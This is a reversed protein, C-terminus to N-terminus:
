SYIAPVIAVALRKSIRLAAGAAFETSTRQAELQKKSATTSM